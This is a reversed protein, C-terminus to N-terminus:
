LCNVSIVSMQGLKIKIGKDNFHILSLIIGQDVQAYLNLTDVPTGGPVMEGATTSSVNMSKFFISKKLSLPFKYEWQLDSLVHPVQLRILSAVM